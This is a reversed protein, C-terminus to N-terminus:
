KESNILNLKYLKILDYIDYYKNFVEQPINIKSRLIDIKFLLGDLIKFKTEMDLQLIVSKGIFKGFRMYRVAKFDTIDNNFQIYFIYDEDIFSTIHISNAYDINKYIKYTLNNRDDNIFSILMNVLEDNM